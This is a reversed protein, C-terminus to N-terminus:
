HYPMKYLKDTGILLRYSRNFAAWILCGYLSESLLSSSLYGFLGAVAKDEPFYPRLEEDSIAYTHQKLKEGYYAMDWVQLHGDAFASVPLLSIVAAMIINRM